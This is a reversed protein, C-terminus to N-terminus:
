SVPGFLKSTVSIPEAFLRCLASCFWVTLLRSEAAPSHGWRAPPKALEQSVALPDSRSHNADVPPRGRCGLDMPRPM